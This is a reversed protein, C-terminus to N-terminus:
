SIRSRADGTQQRNIRRQAPNFPAVRSSSRHLLAGREALTDRLRWRTFCLRDIAVPTLGADLLNALQQPTLDITEPTSGRERRTASNVM